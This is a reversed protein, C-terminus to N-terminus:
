GDLIYSCRRRVLALVLAKSRFRGGGGEDTARSLRCDGRRTANRPIDLSCSTTSPKVGTRLERM